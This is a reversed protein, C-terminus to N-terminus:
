YPGIFWWFLCSLGLLSFGCLWLWLARWRDRRVGGFGDFSDLGGFILPWAPLAPLIAIGIQAGLPLSRITSRISRLPSPPLGDQAGQSYNAQQEGEVIGAFCHLHGLVGSLVSIARKLNCVAISIDGNAKSFVSISSRFLLQPGINANIFRFDRLVFPRWISPMNNYKLDAVVALSGGFYIINCGRAVPVGAFLGQLNNIAFHRDREVTVSAWRRLCCDREGNFEIINLSCSKYGQPSQNVITVNKSLFPHGLNAKCAVLPVDIINIRCKEFDVFNIQFLCHFLCFGFFSVLLSRPLRIM